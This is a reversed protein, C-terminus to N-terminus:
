TGCIDGLSLGARSVESEADKGEGGKCHGRALQFYGDGAQAAHTGPVGEVHLVARGPGLEYGGEGRVGLLGLPGGRLQGADLDVRVVVLHELVLAELGDDHGRDSSDVGLLGDLGDLGVLM